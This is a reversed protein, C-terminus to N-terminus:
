GGSIAAIVDVRSTPALPTDLAARERDVYFHIHPRIAPRGAECLRDRVGPWREDLRAIADDVTAADVDVRRPLDPFLPMLTGPLRVEAM